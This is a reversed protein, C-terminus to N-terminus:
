ACVLEQRTESIPPEALESRGSIWDAAKQAASAARFVLRADSQIANLWGSMYAASAEFACDIGMEQLLFEAGLQAVLEEEAYKASGREVSLVGPRALRHAAGTCHVYEHLAVSVFMEPSIFEFSPPLWVTDTSPVYYAGDNSRCCAPRDEWDQLLEALAQLPQANAEERRPLTPLTLGETQEINFVTYTRMWCRRNSGDRDEEDDFHWFCITTGRSGKIVRGGLEAVARFTLWRPDSFETMSLILRNIGSYPRGSIANQPPLSHWPKSWPLTGNAEIHEIIRATVSEYLSNPKVRSIPPSWSAGCPFTSGSM